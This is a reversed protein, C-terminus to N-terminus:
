PRRGGCDILDAFAGAGIARVRLAARAGCVVPCDLTFLPVVELVDGLLDLAPTPHSSRHSVGPPERLAAALSDARTALPPPFNARVYRAAALAISDPEAVPADLYFVRIAAARGTARSASLDLAREIVHRGPFSPDVTFRAPEGPRPDGSRPAQAFRELDGRFVAEDLAAAARDPFVFASSGSAPGRDTGMGAIIGRSRGGGLTVLSRPPVRLHATLEGPWFVAVDLDGREIAIEEDAAEDYLGVQLTDPWPREPSAVGASDRVLLLGHRSSGGVRYGAPPRLSPNCAFILNSRARGPVGVRLLSLPELPPPEVLIELHQLDGHPLLAGHTLRAVVMEPAMVGTVEAAAVSDGRLRITIRDGVQLPLSDLSALYVRDRATWAIRAPIPHSGAAARSM